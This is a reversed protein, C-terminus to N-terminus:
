HVQQKAITAQMWRHVRQVTGELQVQAEAESFTTNLWAMPIKHDETFDNAMATHTETNLGTGILRSIAASIVVYGTIPGSVHHGQQGCAACSWDFGDDTATCACSMPMECTPCEQAWTPVSM